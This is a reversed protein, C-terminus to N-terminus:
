MDGKKAFATSLKNVAYPFVGFSGLGGLTTVDPLAHTKALSYLLAGCAVLVTVTSHVRAWSLVGPEEEWISKILNM